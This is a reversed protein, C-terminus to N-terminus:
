MRLLSVDCISCILVQRILLLRTVKQCYGEPRKIILMRVIALSHVDLSFKSGKVDIQLSLNPVSGFEKAQLAILSLFDAVTSEGSLTRDRILNLERILQKYRILRETNVTVAARDINTAVGILDNM